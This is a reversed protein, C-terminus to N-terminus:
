IGQEWFLAISIAFFVLLKGSQIQRSQYAGFGPVLEQIVLDGHENEEVGFGLSV